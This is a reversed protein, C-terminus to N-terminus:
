LSDGLHSRGLGNIFLVVLLLQPKIWQLLNDPLLFVDSVGM